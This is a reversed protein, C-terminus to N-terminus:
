KSKEGLGGILLGIAAYWCANAIFFTLWALIAVLPGANDLAIAGFCPPCPVVSLADSFHQRKSLADALVAVSTIFGTLAFVIAFKLQRTM